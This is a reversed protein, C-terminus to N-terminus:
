PRLIDVFGGLSAGRSKIAAYINAERSPAVERIEAGSPILRAWCRGSDQRWCRGNNKKDKAGLMKRILRAWGARGGALQKLLHARESSSADALENVGYFCAAVVHEALAEFEAARSLQGAFILADSPVRTTSTSPLTDNRHSKM